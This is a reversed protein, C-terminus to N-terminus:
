SSRLLEVEEEGKTIVVEEPERRPGGYWEVGVAANVVVAGLGFILILSVAVVAPFIPRVTLAVMAEKPPLSKLSEWGEEEVPVSM